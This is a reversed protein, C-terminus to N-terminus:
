PLVVPFAAPVVTDPSAPVSQTEALTLPLSTPLPLTKYWLLVHDTTNRQRLSTHVSIPPPPHLFLGSPLSRYHGLSTPPSSVSELSGSPCAM